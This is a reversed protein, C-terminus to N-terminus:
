QDQDIEEYIDFEPFHEEACKECICHSFFADSHSSIYNELNNWYGQDDRIKKCYSCIPLLGSLKKVEDLAKQLEIILRDREREASLIRIMSDIRAKLERNSVPRAIYGDAGAELGDAQKGSGTMVGSILIVFIHSLAENEKIKRCLETGKMDPLIVDMLILDPQNKSAAELCESASSAKFVQYGAKEVIRATAFLIDPDDDVVLIKTDKSM